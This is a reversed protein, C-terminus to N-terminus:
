AFEGPPPAAVADLMARLRAVVSEFESGDVIEINLLEGNKIGYMVLFVLIALVPDSANAKM